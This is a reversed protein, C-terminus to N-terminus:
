FFVVIVLSLSDLLAVAFCCYFLMLCDLKFLSIFWYAILWSFYLLLYLCSPGNTQQRPRYEFYILLLLLLATLICGVVIVVAVTAHSCSAAFDM